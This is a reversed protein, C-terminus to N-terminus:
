KSQNERELFEKVARNIFGSRMRTVKGYKELLKDLNELLERDLSVIVKVKGEAM